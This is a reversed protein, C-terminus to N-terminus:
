SMEQRLQRVEADFLRELEPHTGRIGNVVREAYDAYALKRNRSWTLPLRRIDRLNCLKDAIRILRARESLESARKEQLRKRESPPQDMDDTLELVVAAVTPGFHERIQAEVHDPHRADEVTDHLLSAVLLEEDAHQVTTALIHAVQLPHNIYPLPGYGDRRQLRHCEAAFAAAALVPAAPIEAM